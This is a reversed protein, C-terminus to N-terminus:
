RRRSAAMPRARSRARAGGGGSPPGCSRTGSSPGARVPPARAPPRAWIEGFGGEGPTEVSVRVSSAPASKTAISPSFKSPCSKTDSATADPAAPTTTERETPRGLRGDRRIPHGVGQHRQAIQRAVPPAAVSGPDHGDGSGGPLRRGLLKEPLRELAAAPHVGVGSVQVVADPKGQGNQLRRLGGLHQHQLHAGVLRALDRREGGDGLGVDRRHGGHGAGVQLLQTRQLAHEALLQRQHGPQVPAARHHDAVLRGGQAGPRALHVGAHAHGPPRLERVGVQPGLVRVRVGPSAVEEVPAVLPNAELDRAPVRHVVREDREGDGVEQPRGVPEGHAPELPVRRLAHPALLQARAIERKQEVAVVRVRLADAGGEVQERQNGGRSAPDRHQPAHELQAVVALRQVVLEQALGQGPRHVHHQSQALEGGGGLTQPVGPPFARGGRQDGARVRRPAVRQQPSCRSPLSNIRSLPDRPTASSRMTGSMSASKPGAARFPAPHPM